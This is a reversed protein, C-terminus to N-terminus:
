KSKQWAEEQEKLVDAELAQIGELILPTVAIGYVEAVKFLAVYDLGVVGMGVRWQTACRCWLRWADAAQPLLPPERGECGACPPKM